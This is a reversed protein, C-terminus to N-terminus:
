VLILAALFALWFFAVGLADRLSESKAVSVCLRLPTKM